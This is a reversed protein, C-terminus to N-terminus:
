IKTFLMVEAFINSKLVGSKCDLISLKKYIPMSSGVSSKNFTIIEFIMKLYVLLILDLFLENIILFTSLDYSLIILNNFSISSNENDDPFDIFILRIFFTNFCHIFILVCM